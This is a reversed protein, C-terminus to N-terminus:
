NRRSQEPQGCEPARQHRFQLPLGAADRDTPYPQRQDGQQWTLPACIANSAIKRHAFKILEDSLVPRKTAKAFSTLKQRAQFISTALIYEAEKLQKQLQNIEKDQDRVQDRLGDLKREIGAQDAALQLTSKMEKDKSVLLEVLQLVTKKRRVSKNHTQPTHIRRNHDWWVRFRNRTTSHKRYKRRPVGNNRPPEKQAKATGFNSPLLRPVKRPFTPKRPPDNRRSGTERDVLLVSIIRM